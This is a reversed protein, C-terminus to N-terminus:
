HHYPLGANISAARYVAEALVVMALDHPFTLQSFSLRKDCSTIFDTPLGDPGGIILSVEQSALERDQLFAALAFSDLQPGDIVLAVRYTDATLESLKATDYAHKDHVQTIRLTHMRGLRKTYEAWGDAAYALKPKGVTVFHIRM